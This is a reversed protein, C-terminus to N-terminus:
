ENPMKGKDRNATVPRNEAMPAPARLIEDGTPHGQATLFCRRKLYSYVGEALIAAVTECRETEGPLGEVEHSDISLDHTGVLRAESGKAPLYELEVAYARRKQIKPKKDKGEAAVTEGCLAPIEM